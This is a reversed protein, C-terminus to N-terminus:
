ARNSAAQAKCHRSSCLDVAQSEMRTSSWSSCIRIENCCWCFCQQMCIAISLDNKWKWDDVIWKCQQWADCRTLFMSYTERIIWNRNILKSKVEGHIKKLRLYDGFFDNNFKKEYWCFLIIKTEINLKNSIKNLGLCLKSVIPKRCYYNLNNKFPFYLFATQWAGSM